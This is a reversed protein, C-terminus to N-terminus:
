TFIKRFKLAERNFSVITSSKHQEGTVLDLFPKQIWHIAFESSHDEPLYPFLVDFHCYVARGFNGSFCKSNNKKFPAIEGTYMKLIFDRSSQTVLKKTM